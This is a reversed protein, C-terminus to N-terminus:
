TYPFLRCLELHMRRIAPTNRAYQPRIAPAIRACFTRLAAEPLSGCLGAEHFGAAAAPQAPRRGRIYHFAAVIKNSWERLSRTKMLFSWPADPM